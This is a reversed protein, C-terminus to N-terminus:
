VLNMGEALIEKLEASTGDAKKMNIFHALMDDRTHTGDKGNERRECIRQLTWNLPVAMPDPVGLAQKLKVILPHRFWDMQGWYHGMNAAFFFLQHVNKAMALNDSETELQGLPEGFALEGVVDFALYQAWKSMNIVGTEAAHKHLREMLLDMLRQIYAECRLMASM